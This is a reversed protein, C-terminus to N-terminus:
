CCLGRHSIVFYSRCQPSTQWDVNCDICWKLRHIWERVAGSSPHHSLNNGGCFTTSPPRCHLQHVNFIGEFIEGFSRSLYPCLANLLLPRGNILWRLAHLTSCLNYTSTWLISMWHILPSSAITSLRRDTTDSLCHISLSLSLSFPRPNSDFWHIFPCHLRVATHM